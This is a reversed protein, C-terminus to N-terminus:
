FKAVLAAPLTTPGTGVLNLQAYSGYASGLVFLIILIYQKTITKM